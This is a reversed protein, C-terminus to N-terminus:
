SLKTWKACCVDNYILSFFFDFFDIVFCPLSFLLLDLDPKWQTALALISSLASHLQKHIEEQQQQVFLNAWLFIFQDEM